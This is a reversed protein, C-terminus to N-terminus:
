IWRRGWNQLSEAQQSAQWRRHYVTTSNSRLCTGLDLWCDVNENGRDCRVRSPLGYKEVAEEFRGLVTSSYNNTSCCCYVPLRLYGDIGGHIVFRWRCCFCKILWPLWPNEVKIEQHETFIHLGFLKNQHGPSNKVNSVNGRELQYTYKKRGLVAATSVQGATSFEQSTSVQGSTSGQRFRSEAKIQERSTNNTSLFLTM